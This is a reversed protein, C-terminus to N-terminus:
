PRHAPRLIGVDAIPDTWVLEFGPPGGRLPLSVIWVDIEAAEDQDLRRDLVTHVPIDHGLLAYGPSGAAPLVAQAVRRPAPANGLYLYARNLGRSREVVDMGGHAHLWTTSWPAERSSALVVEVIGLLGVSGILAAALRRGRSRATAALVSLGVGSLIVLLPLAPHLFRWVRYPVLQHPLVVALLLVGVAGARRLGAVALIPLVWSLVGLAEAFDRAYRDAPMTGFATQGEGLNYALYRATAAFPGGLTASDVLGWVLATIVTAMFLARGAGQGWQAHGSRTRWALAAAMALLAPALQIRILVTLVAAVGLAATRRRDLDDSGFARETTWVLAAAAPVDILPQAGMVSFAPHLALLGGCAIAAVWGGRALALRTALVVMAVDIVVAVTRAGAIAVEMGAGPGSCGLARSAAMPVALLGPWVWSRMGERFEWTSIGHGWVISFAPELGQFLADPHLYAPETLVQLCRLLGAAFVLLYSALRRRRQDAELDNM